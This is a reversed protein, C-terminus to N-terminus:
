PKVARGRRQGALRHAGDKRQAPDPPAPEAARADPAALHAALSRVQAFQFLAVMALPRGVRAELRSRVAQLLLSSGGLDFFSDTAGVRDVGLVEAWIRAIAQELEGRPAVYGGGLDDRRTSPAPLAARDLKRSHTLPLADLVVFASPVMYDPLETHLRARLEGALDGAGGQAGPVVYCVLRPDGPADERLVVACARIRADRAVAAEIEGPEIRFGRLKVQHDRRGLFALSGDGRHRVLDGTRYLRAGPAASFRDPVFREATLEGRGLYGRAVGLGGLYLEGVAGQPVPELADDLVYCSTNAIPRGIAVPDGAGLSPPVRWFTSYVTTETPGYGNWVSPSRAVLAAALEPTLPEGGTIVQLPPDQGPAWGADLVLRWTTPTAQMVTAGHARILQLLLRGDSAAGRPAIVIRAGVTLPLWLEFAAIDFALTTIALVVDRETLGPQDRLHALLNALGAHRVVVGKPAGTSGSTYLVYAPDDPTAAREDRARGTAAHRAIAAADDDLCVIRPGHAPLRARHRAQTVIAAPAADGTMVALRADPLAPDLPLYAAGAKAIALLAVVMDVSRDVCLGVIQARRVGLEGLLGALQNARADLERYSLAADGCRVAPADPARAAAAEVLEHALQGPAPRSTANLEVVLRHRDAPGLVALEAIRRDPADAAAALLAAWARAMAAVTDPEFLDTSYEWRAVIVDGDPTAAETAELSLDFKAIGLEVAVDEVALGPLALPAAATRLAFAVQFIPNRSVDRTPNLAEVLQEFPTDQHAFGSLCTHKVRQLLDCFTDGPGLRACLAITNALMGVVGELERHGRGAIPSGVVLDRQGSYRFLLAYFATLLTMYPTVGERRSLARLRATLEAGITLSLAAGRYRVVRPRPRDAPLDLVPPAGALEAKWWAVGAELMARHQWQWAAHDAVQRGPAPLEPVAGAALAPYLVELERDLVALSWGDCIVHHFVLALVHHDDALRFLTVRVLPGAALDFPRVAHDHLRGALAREPDPLDALDEVRMAFGPQDAIRQVLAGGVEAFTTRLAEHRRVLADLSRALAATALRGRLRRTVPVHYHASGPQPQLQDLFWLRQQAFSARAPEGRPAVTIPPVVPGAAALRAEIRRALEALVPVEFLERVTLEVGFAERVRAIMRMAILSHGGLAFFEGDRSPPEIALLEAWIAAIRQETPTRPAADAHRDAGVAGPAPLAHRDLKGNSTIPLRDLVVIAGPVMYSPLVAALSGRVAAPDLARGARPVVYAVVRREGTDDRVMVASEAIDGHAALRTEIEGVEVRFGRIKVQHDARGHFEIAGDDRWAGLDGTRYLRGGPELPDEVFRQATLEARNWYGRAVGPGGVYIEGHVGIPVPSRYRDLIRIAVNAIPRGIPLAARDADVERVLHWTAFSTTETPGYANILRRPPGAALVRRVAGVDLVDGGVLVHEVPQFLGPRSAVLQHFLGAPVAMITIGASRIEHELADPSLMIEPILGYLTAGNLLAGWIELTAADFSTSSAHAVVDEPRFRAYDSGVVLNVVSRQEVCVGKPQGTSGSTYMVYALDRSTTTVPLNADSLPALEAEVADLAVLECAALGDSARRAVVIAVGADDAMYVLREAPYSPDLPVYCGGAKLAALAAVVFDLSREMCLGVRDGSSVGRLVLYRALRNARANLAAYSLRADGFVVAPADPARAVQDEFRAHLSRDGPDGTRATYGFGLVRDLEAGSLIPATAPRLEPDGVLRDLIRAYHAAMREVTTRDFLDSNYEWAAEFGAATDQVFLSLDFKAMGPHIFVPEVGLGPLELGGAPASHLAFMTQFVPTAALDRVPRVAEVVREFPVDQHARARLCTDRVAGLLARFSVDDAVRVRVALTNVFLGILDELEPRTRGAIPSGVVLDSQGTYRHLLACYGALLVMYPTVGADRSLRRVAATLEPPLRTRVMVGRTTRVAPRPRDTPLALLEPAGALQETWYALQSALTDGALEGRQWLAFDAYQLALPSLAPETGALWAAYLGRLERMVVGFSWEDCAIHHIVLALVHDDPGLRLLRARFVPGESLAFPRRAEHEAWAALAQQPDAAAGADDIALAPSAPAPAIVQEVQGATEAFRTRLVEHRRVIEHLARELLDIRLPGTLRLLWPVNYTFDGPALRDLFWLRQQAPSLPLPSPRPRAAVPASPVAAGGVLLAQVARSFGALTPADFLTQVPVAVGLLHRLRSAVQTALLSHGGLAFFSDHAGISACSLVQEWIEGVIEEIGSRIETRAALEASRPAVPAPLAARDVKGSGTRPLADLTVLVGPVMYAPLRAQLHARLEAESAPPGSPVVYAILQPTDAVPVVVAVCAAVAPHGALMAEIEGLEIRFGRLKVQHDTRGLYELAGSARWRGLDGTRYMRAGPQDSFPDPLFREATLAGRDLYGRAVTEGGLWIEGTVGVPVPRLWRDLVYGRTAGLPPGIVVPGGVEDATFTHLTAYITCETPGYLNVLRLAPYRELVRDRLPGPVAEGGCAVCRLDTADDLGLEVLAALMLPVVFAFCVRHAALAHALREPDVRDAPTVLALRAGCALPLFIDLVSVDFGLSTTQISTDGPGLAFYRRAHEIRQTVSRHNIMVGKPRGTSGSTYIVYALAEATIAVRDGASAVEDAAGGDTIALFPAGDVGPLRPGLVALPGADDIMIRLREVPYAPDLAVYGAGAKMVGLIAIVADLPDATCVAVRADIRAGIARLRRAVRAARRDLERYTLEVSGFVVAPASPDREVQAEFLEHVCRASPPPQAPPNWGTLLTALEGDSLMALESIPRDPEAVAAGLLRTWHGDLRDVTTEDFLATSFEWIATIAGPTEQLYLALDFTSTGPHADDVTLALGPLALGPWAPRQAVLVQFVPMRSADRAPGALEVMREFPLDQHASAEACIARVRALLARFAPDGSGDIRLAVTNVFFGILPELEARNRGAMASGLVLDDSGTYRSLVACFGTLLAIFPSSREARALARVADSLPTPLTRRLQAGRLSVVPPRPRDSPMDLTRPAGALRDRCYALHPALAASDLTARQWAAFDAYQLSPEPLAPPAGATLAPYLAGLERVFVVLSWGDWAIHHVVLLLRHHDPALRLLRLRLLPGAELDFGTAFEEAALRDAAVARETAPLASLDAVPLAVRADAAVRQVLRGGDEAFTTRLAEHRRVIECVSRHLADVDLAGRLEFVFPANLSPGRPDLQALFWMRQQAFSLAMAGDRPAPAIRANRRASRTAPPSEPRHADTM